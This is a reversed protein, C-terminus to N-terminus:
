ERWPQTRAVAGVTPINPLTYMGLVSIPHPAESHTPRAGLDSQLWLRKMVEQLLWLSPSLMRWQLLIEKLEGFLFVIVATVDAQLALAAPCFPIFLFLFACLHKLQCTIEPNIRYIEKDKNHEKNSHQFFTFRWWIISKPSTKEELLIVNWGNNMSKRTQNMEVSSWSHGSNLTFSWPTIRSKRLSLCSFFTFNSLLSMNSTLLFLFSLIFWDQYLCPLSGLTRPLVIRKGPLKCPLTEQFSVPMGLHQLYAPVLPIWPLVWKWANEDNRSMLCPAKEPKTQILVILITTPCVNM